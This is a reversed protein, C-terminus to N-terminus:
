SHEMPKITHRHSGRQYADRISERFVRRENTSLQYPMIANVHAEADHLVGLMDVGQMRVKDAHRRLAGSTAPFRDPLTLRM